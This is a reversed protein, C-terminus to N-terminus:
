GARPQDRRRCAALHTLPPYWRPIDYLITSHRARFLNSSRVGLNMTQLNTSPWGDDRTAERAGVLGGAYRSAAGRGRGSSGTVRRKRRLGNPNILRFGILRVFRHRCDTGALIQFEALHQDSHCSKFGAIGEDRVLHEVTM